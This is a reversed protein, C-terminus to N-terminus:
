RQAKKKRPLRKKRAARRAAPVGSRGRRPPQLPAVPRSLADLWRMWNWDIM